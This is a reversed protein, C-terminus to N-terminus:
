PRGVGLVGGEGDWCGGPGGEVVGGGGGFRPQWGGRAELRRKGGWVGRGLVGGRGMGLWFPGERGVVGVTPQGGGAPPPPHVGRERADGM